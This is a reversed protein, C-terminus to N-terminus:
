LNIHELHSIAQSIPNSHTQLNTGDFAPFKASSCNEAKLISGTLSYGGSLTFDGGASPFPNAKAVLSCEQM